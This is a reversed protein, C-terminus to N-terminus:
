ASGRQSAAYAYLCGGDHPAPYVSTSLSLSLCAHSPDTKYQQLQHGNYSLPAHRLSYLAAPAKVSRVSTINFDRNDPTRDHNPQMVTDTGARKTRQPHHLLDSWRIFQHHM